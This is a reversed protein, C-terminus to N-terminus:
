TEDQPYTLAYDQFNSVGDGNVDQLKHRYDDVKIEIDDRQGSARLRLNVGQQVLALSVPVALLM